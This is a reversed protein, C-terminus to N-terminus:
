KREYRGMHQAEALIHGKMASEVDARTAGEVLALHDAELAYLHFFYRHPGHGRPPCPGGYGNGGYDNHGETGVNQEGEDMHARDNRINFLVWHTFDGNPADPDHVILAFSHAREPPGVWTLPPSVDEGDCTYKVPIDAGEDFATTSLRFAM